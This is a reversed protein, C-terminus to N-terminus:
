KGKPEEDRHLTVKYMHNGAVHFVVVGEPGTKGEGRYGQAARSGNVRLDDLAYKIHDESFPGDYLVPVVHCLKTNESNWRSTNFLSFRKENLGYGRQIGKGWWEGFHTGPGLEAALADNNAAVWAAFGFNDDGVSIWRKRSGAFVDGHETVHIVGNTGDIKETVVIKRNLRAIKPWEQFPPPTYNTIESITYLADTM